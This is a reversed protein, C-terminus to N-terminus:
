VVELESGFDIWKCHKDSDIDAMLRRLGNDAKDTRDVFFHSLVIGLDDELSLTLLDYVFLEFISEEFSDIGKLLPISIICWLVVDNVSVSDPIALPFL